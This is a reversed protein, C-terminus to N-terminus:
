KRLSKKYMVEQEKLDPLINGSRLRHWCAM